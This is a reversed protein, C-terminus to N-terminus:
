AALGWAADSTTSSNSFSTAHRLVHEEQAHAANPHTGKGPMKVAKPVHYSPVIGLRGRKEICQLVLSQPHGVLIVSLDKGRPCTLSARVSQGNDVGGRHRRMQGMQQVEFRLSVHGHLAGLEQALQGGLLGGQRHSAGM